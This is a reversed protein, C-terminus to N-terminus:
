PTRGHWEIVDSAAAAGLGPREPRGPRSPRGESASEVLHSQQVALHCGSLLEPGTNPPGSVRFFAWLDPKSSWLIDSNEIADIQARRREHKVSDVGDLPDDSLPPLLDDKSVLGDQRVSQGSAGMRWDDWSRRDPVNSMRCHPVPDGPLVSM